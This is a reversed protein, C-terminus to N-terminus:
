PSKGEARHRQATTPIPELRSQLEAFLERIPEYAPHVAREAEPVRLLDEGARTAYGTARGVLEAHISEATTMQGPDLEYTGKVELVYAFWTSPDHAKWRPIAAPEPMMPGVPSSGPGPRWADPGARGVQTPDDELGWHEPKWRGQGWQSRMEQVVAWRQEFAGLDREFVQKQQPSMSAGLEGNIRDIVARAEGMLPESEKTWRAIEEATFPRGAQRAQLMEGAQDFILDAHGLLMKGTERIMAGQLQFRQSASLDYREGVRQNLREFRKMFEWPPIAAVELVLDRAFRHPESEWGNRRWVNNVAHQISAYEREWDLHGAIESLRRSAELLPEDNTEPQQGVLPVAVLVLVLGATLRELRRISWPAHRRKIVGDGAM